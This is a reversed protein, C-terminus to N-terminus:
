EIWGKLKDHVRKLERMVPLKQPCKSECTGCEGCLSADTKFRTQLFYGRRSPEFTGFMIGDNYKSFV